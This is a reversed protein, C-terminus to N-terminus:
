RPRVLRSFLFSPLRSTEIVSYFGNQLERPPRLSPTQDPGVGRSALGQWLQRSMQPECLPCSLGGFSPPSGAVPTLPARPRVASSDRGTHPLCQEARWPIQPSCSSDHAQPPCLPGGRRNGLLSEQTVETRIGRHSAAPRCSPEQPHCHPEGDVCRM